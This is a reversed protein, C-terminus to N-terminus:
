AVALLEPQHAPRAAHLEAHASPRYRYSRLKVHYLVRRLAPGCGLLDGETYSSILAMAISRPHAGRALLAVALRVGAPPLTRRKHM